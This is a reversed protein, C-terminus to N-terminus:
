QTEIVLYKNAITMAKNNEELARLAGILEQWCVSEHRNFWAQLLVRRREPIDSQGSEIEDMKGEPIGLETGLERWRPFEKLARFLQQVEGIETCVAM